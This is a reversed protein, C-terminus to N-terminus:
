PQGKFGGGTDKRGNKIFLLDSPLRDRDRPVSCQPVRVGRRRVSGPRQGIHYSRDTWRSRPGRDRLRSRSTKSPLGSPACRGSPRCPLRLRGCAPTPRWSPARPFSSSNGAAVPGPAEQRSVPGLPASRGGFLHPFFVRADSLTQSWRPGLHGGALPNSDSIVPFGASRRTLVTRRDPALAIGSNHVPAFLGEKAM